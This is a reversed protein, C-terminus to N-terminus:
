ERRRSSEHYIIIPSSGGKAKRDRNWTTLSHKSPAIFQLSRLRHWRRRRGIRQAQWLPEILLIEFLLPRHNLKFSNGDALISASIAFM